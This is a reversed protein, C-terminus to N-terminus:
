VRTSNRTLTFPANDPSYGLTQGGAWGHGSVHLNQVQHLRLPCAHGAGGTEIPGHWAGKYWFLGEGTLKHDAAWAREFGDDCEDM